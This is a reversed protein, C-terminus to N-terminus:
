HSLFDALIINAHKAGADSLWLEDTFREVVEAIGANLDEIAAIDRPDPKDPDMGDIPAVRRRELWAFYGDDIRPKPKRTYVQPTSPRLTDNQLPKDQASEEPPRKDAM